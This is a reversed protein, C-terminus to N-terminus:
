GSVMATTAHTGRVRPSSGSFCWGSGNRGPHEGCARPHVALGSERWRFNSTNGARAPIFRRDIITPRITPLTGRVRPSSGSFAVGAPRCYQHEGCARPHVTTSWPPTTTSPTNGARAPIFRCPPPLPRARAQTGRVRPSSGAPPGTCPSFPLHEGCARPHVPTRSSSARWPSTNGARAPIFRDAKLRDIEM